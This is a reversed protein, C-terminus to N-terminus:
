APLWALKDGPDVYLGFDTNAALLMRPGNSADPAPGIAVWADQSSRLYFIPDGYPQRGKPAANTTAGPASLTESWQMRQLLAAARPGNEGTGGAFACFVHFGTFAM